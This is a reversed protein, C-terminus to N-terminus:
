GGIWIQPSSGYYIGPDMSGDPNPRAPLFARYIGPEAATASFTTGDPSLQAVAKTIWADDACLRQGAADPKNCHGNRPNGSADTDLRQINVSRRPQAPTVTGALSTGSATLTVRAAATVAVARTALGLSRAVVAFFAQSPPQLLPFSWHGAADSTTTVGTTDFSGAGDARKSRLLELTVGPLPERRVITGRSVMDRALDGSVALQDTFLGDIRGGTRVSLTLRPALPRTASSFPDASARILRCPQLSSSQGASALPCAPGENPDEPPEPAQVYWFSGREDRAVRGALPVNPNVESMRGSALDIRVFSRPDRNGIRTLYVASASQSPSAFPSYGGEGGGKRALVRAAGGGARLRRVQTESGAGGQNEDSVQVISRGRISMGTTTGCQGRDLRRSSAHASLTAVYPVDCDMLPGGGRKGRPDPHHDYGSVVYTKARRVFAVRDRWQAPWAEDM